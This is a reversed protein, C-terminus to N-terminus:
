EREFGRGLGGYVSVTRGDASPYALYSSNPTIVHIPQTREYYSKRENERREQDRALADIQQQQCYDTNYDVGNWCNEANVTDVILFGLFIAVYKKM